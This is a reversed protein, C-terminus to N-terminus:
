LAGVYLKSSIVSTTTRWFSRSSLRLRLRRSFAMLARCLARNAERGAGRGGASFAFGFFRVSGPAGSLRGFGLASVEVFDGTAGGGL